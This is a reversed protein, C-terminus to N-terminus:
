SVSSVKNDVIQIGYHTEIFCVRWKRYFDCVERYLGRNHRDQLSERLATCFNFAHQQSKTLHAQDVDIKEWVMHWHRMGSRVDARWEDPVKQGRPTQIIKEFLSATYECLDGFSLRSPVLVEFHRTILNGSRGTDSLKREFSERFCEQDICERIFRDMSMSIDKGKYKVQLRKKGRILRGYRKHRVFSWVTGSLEHYGYARYKPHIKVDKFYVIPEPFPGTKYHVENIVGSVFNKDLNLKEAIKAHSIGDRYLIRMQVVQEKTAPHEMVTEM